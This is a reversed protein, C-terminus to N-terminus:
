GSEKNCEERCIELRSWVDGTNKRPRRLANLHKTCGAVLLGEISGETLHPCDPDCYKYAYESM